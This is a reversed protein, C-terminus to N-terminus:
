NNRDSLIGHANMKHYLTRESTKLLKAIERRTKGGLQLATRLLEGEIKRMLEPFPLEHRMMILWLLNAAKPIEEHTKGEAHSESEQRLWDARTLSDGDNKMFLARQVANELERVNGEFRCASLYEL